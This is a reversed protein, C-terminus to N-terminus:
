TCYIKDVERVERFQGVFGCQVMTRGANEALAAKHVNTYLCREGLTASHAGTNSASQM